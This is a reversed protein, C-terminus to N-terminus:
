EPRQASKLALARDYVLNKALGTAKVVASVATKLPLEALLVALWTDLDAGTGASVADDVPLNEGRIVWAWEGREA